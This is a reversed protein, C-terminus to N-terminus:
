PADGLRAVADPVGSRANPFKAAWSLERKIRDNSTKASRVVAKVPDGGAIRKAIALPIRRPEGV